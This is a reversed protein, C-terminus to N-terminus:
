FVSKCEGKNETELYILHLFLFYFFVVLIDMNVIYDVILEIKLFWNLLLKFTLANFNWKFITRQVNKTVFDGILGEYNIKDLFGSETLILALGNLRELM